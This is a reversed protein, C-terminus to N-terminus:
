FSLTIHTTNPEVYPNTPNPDYADFRSIKMGAIAHDLAINKLKKLSRTYGIIMMSTKEENWYLEKVVKGYKNEISNKAQDETINNIVINM